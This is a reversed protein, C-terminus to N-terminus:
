AAPKRRRRVKPASERATRLDLSTQAAQMAAGDALEQMLDVARRPDSRAARFAETMAKIVPLSNSLLMACLQSASIGSAESCELIAARVEPPFSVNIRPVRTSV